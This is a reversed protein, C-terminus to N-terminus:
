KDAEMKAIAAQMARTRSCLGECTNCMTSPKKLCDTCVQEIENKLAALLEANQARSELLDNIYNLQIENGQSLFGHYEKVYILANRSTELEGNTVKM